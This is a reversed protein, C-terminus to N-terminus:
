LVPQSIPFLLSTLNVGVLMNYCKDMRMCISESVKKQSASFVTVVVNM